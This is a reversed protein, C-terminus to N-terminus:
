QPSVGAVTLLIAGATAPRTWGRDAVSGAIPASIAGAAGALGFLAIGNQTLHFDPGALLLPVATWFMSFVFFLTAHYLARRRLAENGAALHMMSGLLEGYHLRVTPTRPPLARRLVLILGAMIVASIFYVMHWSSAAAIFSSAPRALMVGIMLGSTVNGVVRGRIAAPALHGAYPILIQGAGSGLGVSLGSLLFPLPHSSLGAGVLALAGLGTVALVLRRNEVLDGLPVILLLGAWYGLQPVAVILGAAQPSLALDRAIPGVLPQAYYLNAVILGCAAALLLTLWGSLLESPRSPHPLDTTITTVCFDGTRAVWAACPGGTPPRM